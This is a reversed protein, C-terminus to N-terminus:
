GIKTSQEDIEAILFEYHKQLRKKDRRIHKCFDDLGNLLLYTLMSRLLLETDPHYIRKPLAQEFYNLPEKVTWKEKNYVIGAGIYDCVMEIVYKLPIKIPDNSKTGVNDIWYEWHHPNHGKHHQWAISYGIKEKEADIPSRGGQFHRASKFFETIGFKSNDHNLGRWFYGCRWCLHMVIFKHKLITKFHKWYNM